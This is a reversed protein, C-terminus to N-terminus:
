IKLAKCVVLLIFAVYIEPAFRRGSTFCQALFHVSEPDWLIVKHVQHSRSCMWEAANSCQIPLFLQCALEEPFGPEM